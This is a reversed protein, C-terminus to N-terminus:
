GTSIRCHSQTHVITYSRTCMMGDQTFHDTDDIDFKNEGAVHVQVCEAHTSSHTHAHIQRGTQRGTRHITCVQLAKMKPRFAAFAQSQKHAGLYDDKSRYREYILYRLQVRTTHTNKNLAIDISSRTGLRAHTCTRTTHGARARARAHGRAQLGRAHSRCRTKIRAPLKM